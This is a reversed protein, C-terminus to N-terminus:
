RTRRTSRLRQLRIMDEASVYTAEPRTNKEHWRSVAAVVANVLVILLGASLGIVMLRQDLQVLGVLGVIATVVLGLM